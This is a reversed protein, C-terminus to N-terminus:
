AYHIYNYRTLKYKLKKQYNLLLVIIVVIVYFGLQGVILM